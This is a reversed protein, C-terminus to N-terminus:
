SAFSFADDFPYIGVFSWPDLGNAVAWVADRTCRRCSRFKFSPITGDGLADYTTSRGSGLIAQVEYATLVLPIEEWSAWGGCPEGTASALSHLSHGAPPEPGGLEARVNARLRLDPMPRPFRLGDGESPEPLWRVHDWPDFGNAIAWVIARSCRESNRVMMLPIQGDIIAQYITSDVVRLILAVQPKTLTYPLDTWSRWVGGPLPEVDDASRLLPISPENAPQGDHDNHMDTGKTM